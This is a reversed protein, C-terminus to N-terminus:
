KGPFFTGAALRSAAVPSTLDLTTMKVPFFVGAALQIAAVPSTLTGIIAARHIEAVMLHTKSRVAGRQM